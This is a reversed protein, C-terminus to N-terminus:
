MTKKGAMKRDMVTSATLFGGQGGLFREARRARKRGAKGLAGRVFMELLQDGNLATAGEQECFVASPRSLNRASSDQATEGSM